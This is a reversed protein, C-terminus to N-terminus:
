QAVGGHEVEDLTFMTRETPPVTPATRLHDFHPCHYHRGDDRDDLRIVLGHDPNLPCVLGRWARV